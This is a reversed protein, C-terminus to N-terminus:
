APADPGIHGAVRLRSLAKELAARARDIEFVQGEGGGSLRGLARDRAKTARVQDIEEAREAVEALVSVRGPLVEAFGWSIALYHRVNGKRYVLYGIGLTTLLPAHGPLIGLYGQSGPLIVEDVQESALRREPTVIELRIAEPLM